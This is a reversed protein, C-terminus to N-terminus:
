HQYLFEKSNLLVWPMRSLLRWKVKSSMQQFVKREEATPMRSYFLMYMAGLKDKENKIRSRMINNLRSNIDSSNFLYLRQDSSINRKREEPNGTDRSPRGFLLLLQDTVSGDPLAAARNNYYSFPEPIVSSYSYPKGTILAISDALVEADLRRIPYIAATKLMRKRDGKSLSGVRYAASTCIKGHLKRLSFGNKRFDEALYTIIRDDVDDNGYTWRWVRKVTSKAFDQSSVVKKMLPYRLDDAPLLDSYVIEEKWERTSKFKICSFTKIFHKQEAPSLQKLSKGLLFKAAADAIETPQKQPVARFFNAYGNRFNSGDSLILAEAFKDFPMDNRLANYITNTYLFAANPWLNIPFESKIRLEDGLRMTMFMAYEESFLLKEVLTAQKDPHNDNIYSRAEEPSPVRGLLDIYVRRVMVCDSAERAPSIKEKKWLEYLFRDFDTKIVPSTNKLYINQSLLTLSFIAAATTLIPKLLTM